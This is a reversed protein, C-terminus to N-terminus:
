TTITWTSLDSRSPNYRAYDYRRPDAVLEGHYIRLDNVNPPEWGRPVHMLVIM